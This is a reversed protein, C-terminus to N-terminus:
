RRPQAAIAGHETGDPNPAATAFVQAVEQLVAVDLEDRDTVHLLHLAFGDLLHRIRVVAMSVTGHVAIQVLDECTGVDIRHQDGGTIAPVRHRGDRSGLCALVHVTFLRTGHGDRFTTGQGIREAPVVTDILGACLAATDAIEEERGVQDRAALQSFEDGHVRVCQSRRGTVLPQRLFRQRGFLFAVPVRPQTRTRPPRVVLLVDGAAPAPKEVEM